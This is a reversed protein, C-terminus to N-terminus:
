PKQLPSRGGNSILAMIRGGVALLDTHGDGDLDAAYLSHGKGRLSLTDAGVERTMDCLRGAADALLVRVVRDDLEARDARGDGDLDAAAERSADPLAAPPEGGAHWSGIGSYQLRARTGDPRELLLDDGDARLARAVGAQELATGATAERWAGHDRTLYHLGQTTAAVLDIDHDHDPDLLVVDLVEDADYGIPVPAPSLALPPPGGCASLGAALLVALGAPAPAPARLMLLM